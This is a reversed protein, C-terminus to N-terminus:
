DATVWAHAFAAIGRMAEDFPPIEGYVMAATFREYWQRAEDSMVLDALADRALAIPAERFEPDQGRFEEGDQLLIQRALRGAKQDKVEQPFHDFICALDYIHRVIDEDRSNGLEFVREVSRLRASWRRLLASNKGAVTESIHLCAIKNARGARGLAENILTDYGCIVPTLIPARASMEILLEPRLAQDLPYLSEYNLQVAIYRNENGAKVCEARIEYGQERLRGLVEAKAHSLLRKQASRSLGDPVVVRLDIDESVRQTYRHAKSVATGGCLVFAAQRDRYRVPREFVPFLESILLDKELQATSVRSSHEAVFADILESQAETLRKM